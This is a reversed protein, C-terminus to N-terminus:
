LTKILKVVKEFFDFETCANKYNQTVTDLGMRVAVAHAIEGEPVMEGQPTALRKDIFKEVREKAEPSLLDYDKTLENIKEQYQIKDLWAKIYKQSHVDVMDQKAKRTIAEQNIGEVKTTKFFRM